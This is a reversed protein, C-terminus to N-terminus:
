FKDEVHGTVHLRFVNEGDIGLMHVNKLYNPLPSVQVLVKPHETVM